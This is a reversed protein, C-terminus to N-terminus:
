DVTDYDFTKAGSEWGRALQARYETPSRGQIRKFVRNFHTLSQFGAEYAIESVRFNPNLLLSKAREIRVRSLYDTFHIGTAKTFAKCFNCASTNMAKAVRGLTLKERQHEAIYQKARTILPTEEREEQAVIQNSVLSLHEAFITLLKVVSRQEMVPLVRTGFYLDHLQPVRAPVGWDALLKVTRQFQAGTPKKHFVQGTTLFGILQNGMRVPVATECLGALCTVTQPSHAAAEALQQQVQLCAACSQNTRALLACFPNELRQGQHPLQWAEVPRLTLPLGTTASFAREYEQYIKSDALSQILPKAMTTM